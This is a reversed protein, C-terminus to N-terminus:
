MFEVVQGTNRTANMDIIRQNKSGRFKLGIDRLKNIYLGDILYDSLALLAQTDKDARLTLDEYTYGTYVTIDLGTRKIATAIKVLAGAQLFPEGGSFTVGQFEKKRTDRAVAPMCLGAAAHNKRRVTGAADKIMKIVERVTYEEGGSTDWSEPNHCHECANKCGQVFVVVRIGPGDVFSEHSFGSLRLLQGNEGDVAKNM